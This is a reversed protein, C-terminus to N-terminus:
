YTDKSFAFNGNRTHGEASIALSGLGCKWGNLV